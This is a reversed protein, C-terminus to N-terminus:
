GVGLTLAYHEQHGQAARSPLLALLPSKGMAKPAEPLNVVILPFCLSHESFLDM